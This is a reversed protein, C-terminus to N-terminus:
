PGIEGFGPTIVDTEVVIPGPGEGSDASAGSVVEGGDGLRAFAKLDDRRGVLRSLAGFRAATLYGVAGVVETVVTIVACATAGHSRLAVLNAVLNVALMATQIAVVRSIAGAAILANGAWSNYFHALLGAALITVLPVASQYASGYVVPILWRGAVALVLASALGVLLAVRLGRRSARDFEAGSRRILIPRLIDNNMVVAIVVFASLANVAVRYQGAAESGRLAALIVVDVQFYATYFVSSASYALGHRISSSRSESRLLPEDQHAGSRHDRGHRALAFTLLCVSAVVASTAFLEASRSVLLAAIGAIVTAILLALERRARRAFDLRRVPETFWIALITQAAAAVALLVACVRATRPLSPWALAVGCTLVALVLGAALARRLARRFSLMGTLYMQDAGFPGPAFVVATLAAGAAYSGYPGAGVRRALAVSLGLTLGLALLRLVVLPGSNRVRGWTAALSDM